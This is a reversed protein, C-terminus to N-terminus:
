RSRRVVHVRMPILKNSGEDEEEEEDGRGKGGRAEEAIIFVALSDSM